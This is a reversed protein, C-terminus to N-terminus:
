VELWFFLKYFFFYKFINENGLELTKQQFKAFKTRFSFTLNFVLFTEEEKATNQAFALGKKRGQHEPGSLVVM